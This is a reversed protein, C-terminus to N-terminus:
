RSLLDKVDLELSDEGVYVSELDSVESKDPDFEVVVEAMFVRNLSKTKRSRQHGYDYEEYGPWEKEEVSLSVDLGAEFEIECTFRTGERELVNLSCVNIDYVDDVTGSFRRLRLDGREVALKRLKEALWDKLGECDSLAEQLADHLEQSVTARSIIDEISTAYILPGAASCCNELDRDNSAVYAKAKTKACWARLSAIVVADPFESKKRTTFPPKLTFYDAFLQDLSCATPVDIAQTASLFQEFAQKLRRSADPDILQGVVSSIGAQSFVVEHKKAANIAERLREDLYGYVERKTIETTLLRLSGQKTFHVLRSLLKGDWDCQARVFAETDIFVYPTQLDQDLQIPMLIIRAGILQSKQTGLYASAFAGLSVLHSFRKM